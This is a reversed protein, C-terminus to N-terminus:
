AASVLRLGRPTVAAHVPADHAERPLAGGASGSWESEFIAAVVLADPRAQILARDYWGGGQGLRTGAYDVGLAPVVILDASELESGPLFDSSPEPPRGPAREVLDDAGRFEGWGRQLGDGLMPVLVRTGREALADILPGTGPELPRSVYVSACSAEEFQPLRMLHEAIQHSAEELRRASREQRAARARTRLDDKAAALQEAASRSSATETRM